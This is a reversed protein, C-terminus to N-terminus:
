RDVSTCPRAMSAATRRERLPPRHLRRRRPPCARRDPNCRSGAATAAQTDVAVVETRVAMAAEVVVGDVRGGVMVAAERAAATAEAVKVEAMVVVARAAAGRVVAVMEVVVMVEVVMVVVTVVM